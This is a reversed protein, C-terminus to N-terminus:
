EGSKYTQLQGDYSVVKMVKRVENDAIFLTKIRDTGLPLARYLGSRSMGRVVEDAIVMDSDLGITVRRTVMSWKDLASGPLTLFRKANRDERRTHVIEMKDVVSIGYGRVDKSTNEPKQFKRAMRQTVVFDPVHGLDLLLRGDPNVEIGRMEKFVNENLEFSGLMTEEFQEMMPSYCPIAGHVDFIIIM